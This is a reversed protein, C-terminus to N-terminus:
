CHGHSSRLLTGIRVSSECQGDDVTVGDDVGVDIAFAVRGVTVVASLAVKFFVIKFEPISGSLKLFSIGGRQRWLLLLKGRRIEIL